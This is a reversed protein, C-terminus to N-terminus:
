ESEDHGGKPEVNAGFAFGADGDAPPEIDDAPAFPDREPEDVRLVDFRRVSNFDAGATM